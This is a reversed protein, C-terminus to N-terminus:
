LNFFGRSVQELVILEVKEAQGNKENQLEHLRYAAGLGTPAAGICVIRMRSSIPSPDMSQFSQSYLFYSHSLSPQFRSRLSVDSRSVSHPSRGIRRRVINGLASVIPLYGSGRNRVSSPCVKVLRFSEYRQSISTSPLFIPILIQLSSVM